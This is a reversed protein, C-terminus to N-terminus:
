TEEEEGDVSDCRTKKSGSSFNMEVGVEPKLELSPSETSYEITRTDQAQPTVNVGGHQLQQLRNEM